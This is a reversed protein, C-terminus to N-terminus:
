NFSNILLATILIFLHFIFSILLNKFHFYNSKKDVIPVMQDIILSISIALLIVNLQNIGYAIIVPILIILLIIGLHFHHWDFGTKVRLWGTITKSKENKTGYNKM